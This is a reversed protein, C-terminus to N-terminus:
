SVKVAEGMTTKIYMSRIHPDIGREFVKENELTRLITHINELIEEDKTEESGVPVQIQPADKMNISVSRKYRNVMSNLDATPPVPKPMKGRPGLIKGLTKGIQIMLTSQALFYDFESATKKAIKSSKVMEDLDKKTLVRDANAETAKKVMDEEAFVAIKTDAGSSHPLAVDTKIRNQPTKLDIDRLNLIFEVRQTFNKKTSKKAAKLAKKIADENIM